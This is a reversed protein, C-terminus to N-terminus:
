ANLYRKVNLVKGQKNVEFGERELYERQRLFGKGRLTIKGQANIVRHWPLQTDAPLESLIKGVHRAHHPYGAQKALQGYTIIKRETLNLLITYISEKLEQM